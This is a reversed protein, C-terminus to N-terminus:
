KKGIQKGDKNLVGTKVEEHPSTENKWGCLELVPAAAKQRISPDEDGIADQVIRMVLAERKSIEVEGGEGEVLMKGDLISNTIEKITAM